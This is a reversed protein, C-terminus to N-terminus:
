VLERYISFDEWSDFRVANEMLEIFREKGTLLSKGPSLFANTVQKPLVENDNLMDVFRRFLEHNRADYMSWELHDGWYLDIRAYTNSAVRWVAKSEDAQM